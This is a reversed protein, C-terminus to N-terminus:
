GSVPAGDADVDADPDIAVLPGTVRPSDELLYRPGTGLRGAADDPNYLACTDLSLCGCGICSSLKDRLRELAAADTRVRFKKEALALNVGGALRLGMMVNDSFGTEPDLIEKRTRRGRRAAEM